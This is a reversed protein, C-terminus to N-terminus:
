AAVINIITGSRSAMRTMRVIDDGAHFLRCGNATEYQNGIEDLLRRDAESVHAIMKDTKLMDVLDAARSAEAEQLRITIIPLRRMTPPMPTRVSSEPVPRAPEIVVPGEEIEVKVREQQPAEVKPAKPVKPVYFRKTRPPAVKKVPPMPLAILGQERASDLRDPEVRYVSYNRGPKFDIIHAYLARRMMYQLRRYFNNDKQGPELIGENVYHNYFHRFYLPLGANALLLKVSERNRATSTASRDDLTALELMALIATSGLSRLSSEAQTTRQGIDARADAYAETDLKIFRDTRPKILQHRPPREYRMVNIVRQVHTFPEDLQEALEITPLGEPGAAIVTSLIREQIETVALSQVVAADTEPRM